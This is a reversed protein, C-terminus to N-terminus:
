PRVGNRYATVSTVRGCSASPCVRGGPAWEPWTVPFACHTMRWGSGDSQKEQKGGGHREALERLDRAGRAQLRDHRGLVLELGVPPQAAQVEHVQVAVPVQVEEQALVAIAGGDGRDVVAGAVERAGDAAVRLALDVEVVVAVLVPLDIEGHRVLVAAPSPPPVDRGRAGEVEAVLTM